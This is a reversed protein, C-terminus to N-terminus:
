CVRNVNEKRMERVSGTGREREIESVWSGDREKEVKSVWCRRYGGGERGRQQGREVRKGYRTKEEEEEIPSRQSRPTRENSIQLFDM